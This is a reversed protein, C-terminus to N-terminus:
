NNIKIENIKKQLGYFAPKRIQNQGNRDCEIFGFHSEGNYKGDNKEYVPEDLLEYFIIGKLKPNNCNVLIDIFEPIWEAQWKYRNEDIKLEQKREEQSLKIKQGNVM